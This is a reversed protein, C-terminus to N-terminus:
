RPEWEGALMRSINTVVHRPGFQTFHEGLYGGLAFSPRWRVEVFKELYQQREDEDLEAPPRVGVVGACICHKRDTSGGVLSGVGLLAFDLWSCQYYIKGAVVPLAESWDAEPSISAGALVVNEVMVDRPLLGLGLRVVEAGASQSALYIREEPEAAKYTAIKDALSQAALQVLEYESRSVIPFGPPRNKHWQHAEVRAGYGALPLALKLVMDGAHLPGSTGQVYIVRDRETLVDTVPTPTACGVAVPGAFLILLLKPAILGRFDARSKLFAGRKWHGVRTGTKERQCLM